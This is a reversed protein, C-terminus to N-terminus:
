ASKSLAMGRYRHGKIESEMWADGSLHAKFDQVLTEDVLVAGPRAMSELRAATNLAEGLFSYDGHHWECRVSGAALGVRFQLGDETGRSLARCAFLVKEVTARRQEPDAPLDWAFLAGDGRDSLKQAGYLETLTTLSARIRDHLARKGMEDLKSLKKTYGVTDVAMALMPFEACMQNRASGLMSQFWKPVAKGVRESRLSAFRFDFVLASALGVFIALDVVEIAIFKDFRFFSNATSTWALLAVALGTSFFEIQILRHGLHEHKRLKWLLRSAMILTPLVVAAPGWAQFFRYVALRAADSTALTVALLMIIGIGGGYVLAARKERSTARFFGAGLWPICALSISFFTFILAHRFYYDGYWPLFRSYNASYLASTLSFIAFAFYEPRRPVGVYLGLFLFFLIGKLAAPLLPKLGTQIYFDQMQKELISSRGLPMPNFHAIGPFATRAKRVRVELRVPGSKLFRAPIRYLALGLEDSSGLYEGNWFIEHAGKISGLSLSISEQTRAMWGPLVFDNRYWFEERLSARIEEPLPHPLTVIKEWQEDATKAGNHFLWEGALDIGEPDVYNKPQVAHNLAASFLVFVVLLSFGAFRRLLKDKHFSEM